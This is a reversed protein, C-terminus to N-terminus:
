VMPREVYPIHLTVLTGQGLGEDAKNIISLHTTTGSKRNLIELRKQNIHTSLSQKGGIANNEIGKGDDEIRCYFYGAEKRIEIAIHGQHNIDQMGHQVANEVFPQILMPPILDNEMEEEEPCHITYRFQKEFRIAQLSLYNNLAEVERALPVFDTTSNELNIRLLRSFQNLYRISKEKEDLRIFSQLTSLTNFIFHPEMQIRLLRQEMEIHKLRQKLNKRRYFSIGFAILLLLILTTAIITIKYLLAIKKQADNVKKLAAIKEDRSKVSYKAELERAKEAYASDSHIELKEFAAKFADSSEKYNRLAYSANAKRQWAKIIHRPEKGAIAIKLFSDAYQDSIRYNKLEFNVLSLNRYITPSFDNGKRYYSFAKDIAAKAQRYDEKAMFFSALHEYRAGLYYPSALTTDNLVYKKMMYISSDTKDIANYYDAIELALITKLRPNSARNFGEFLYPKRDKTNGMYKYLLALTYCNDSLNATDNKKRFEYAERVLTLAAPYNNQDMYFKGITYKSTAIQRGTTDKELAIKLAKQFYYLASDPKNQMGFIIAQMRIVNCDVQYSRINRITPALSDLIKQAKEPQRMNIYYNAKKGLEGILKKVKAAREKTSAQEKKDPKEKCSTWFCLLTIVVIHLYCKYTKM